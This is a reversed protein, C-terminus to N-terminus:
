CGHKDLPAIAGVDLPRLQLILWAYAASVAVCIDQHSLWAAEIMARMGCADHLDVVPEVIDLCNELLMDHYTMAATM